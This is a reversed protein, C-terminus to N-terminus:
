SSLIESSLIVMLRDNFFNIGWLRMIVCLGAFIQM